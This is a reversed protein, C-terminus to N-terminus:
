TFEQSSQKFSVAIGILLMLPCAKALMSTTRCISSFASGSGLAPLERSGRQDCRIVLLAAILGFRGCKQVEGKTQKTETM